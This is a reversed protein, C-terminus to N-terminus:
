NTAGALASLSHVSNRMARAQGVLEEAAAASEESAAAITQTVKELHELSQNIQGMGTSQEKSGSAVQSVREISTRAEKGLEQVAAVLEEVRSSGDSAGQISEEILGSTDKAAEACRQALNRVEDAVVAFGMGAQGARAAEVAANLALINTQFAIGDITSIIQAIKGSSSKLNAMAKVLNSLRDETTELSKLSLNMSSLALGSHNVNTTAMTSVELGAASTQEIAAAQESAGKALSNSSGAIQDAASSVQTANSDLESAVKHLTQNLSRIVAFSFGIGLLLAVVGCITVLVAATTNFSAAAASTEKAYTSNWDLMKELTRKFVDFKPTLNQNGLANARLKAEVSTNRSVQKLEDEWFRHYAEWQTRLQALNARDEEKSIFKEYLDFNRYLSALTAAQDKEFSDFNKPDLNAIHHWVAARYVGVDTSVRGIYELGPVVDESLVETHLRIKQMSFICAVNLGIALLTFVATVRIVRQSVTGTHWIKWNM